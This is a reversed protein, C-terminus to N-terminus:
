VKRLSFCQALVPYSGILYDELRSLVFDPDFEPFGYLYSRDGSVIEWAASAILKRLNQNFGYKNIPRSCFPHLNLFLDVTLVFLGDPKLCRHVLKMTEIAVAEPLHEIVSIALVRDVSAEALPVNDITTNFLKVQTGFQKNLEQLKMSTCPWGNAEMGPDINIVHCGYQDMVFQLGSLGAGLEVVRMDPALKAEYFAWPYEFTRTTNNSQFAFPGRRGIRVTREGNKTIMIPYHGFPAGNAHNWDDFIQPIKNPALM